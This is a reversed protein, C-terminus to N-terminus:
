HAVEQGKGLLTAIFHQLLLVNALFVNVDHTAALPENTLLKFMPSALRPREADNRIAQTARWVARTAGLMADWDLPGIIM